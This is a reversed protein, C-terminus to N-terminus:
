EEAVEARVRSGSFYLPLLKMFAKGDTPFFEKGNFLIGYEELERIQSGDLGEFLVQGDKLVAKGFEKKTGDSQVEFIEVIM